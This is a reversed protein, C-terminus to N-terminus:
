YKYIKNAKRLLENNVSTNLLIGDEALEGLPVNDNILHEMRVTSDFATAVPNHKTVIGEGFELSEYIDELKEEYTKDYDDYDYTKFVEDFSDFLRQDLLPAGDDNDNHNCSKVKLNIKDLIAQQEDILKQQEKQAKQEKMIEELTKTPEQIDIVNDHNNINTTNWVSKM